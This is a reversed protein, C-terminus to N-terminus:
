TEGDFYLFHDLVALKRCARRIAFQFMCTRVEMFLLSVSASTNRKAVEILWCLADFTVAGTHM